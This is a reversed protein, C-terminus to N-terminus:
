GNKKIDEMISERIAKIDASEIVDSEQQIHKAAIKPVTRSMLMDAARLRVQPDENYLCDRLVEVVEISLLAIAEAAVQRTREAENQKQTIEVIIENPIREPTPM